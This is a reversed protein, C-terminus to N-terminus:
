GTLDILEPDLLPNYFEATCEDDVTPAPSAGLALIADKCTDCVWKGDTGGPLPERLRLLHGPQGGVRQGCVPCFGKFMELTSDVVRSPDFDAIKKVVV